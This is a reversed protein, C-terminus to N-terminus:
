SGCFTGPFSGPVRIKPGLVHLTSRACYACPFMFRGMLTSFGPLTIMSSWGIMPDCFMGSCMRIVADATDHLLIAPMQIRWLAGQLKECECLNLDTLNVLGAFSSIDGTTWM